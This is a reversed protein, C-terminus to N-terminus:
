KDSITVLTLTATKTNGLADIVTLHFKHTGNGDGLASLLPTFETVDFAVTRKGLVDKGTVFGLIKLSEELSGPHALDFESTLNMTELEEPTLVESDIVVNLNQIGEPAGVKVVVTKTEGNRLEISGAIDFGDGVITPTNDQGPINPRDEPIITDEGPKVQYTLDIKECSALLNLKFAMDGISPLDIDFEVNYYEGAKTTSFSKSMSVEKSEVMGKFEAILPSGTEKAVFYGAQNEEQYELKGDGITITVKWGNALVDKLRQTFSVTVKINQFTCKITDITTVENKKVTFTQTGKYFPKDFEASKLDHSLVDIRYEGVELTIIEPMKSLQAYEQVLQNNKTSYIRVIYNDTSIPDGKTIVSVNVDVKIAAFSVQGEGEVVEKEDDQGFDPNDNMCSSLLLTGLLFLSCIYKIAKM